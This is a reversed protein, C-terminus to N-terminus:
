VTVIPPPLQFAEVRTPRHGQSLSSASIEESLRIVVVAARHDAHKGQLGGPGNFMSWISDLRILYFGTHDPSSKIMNVRTAPYCDSHHCTWWVEMTIHDEDDSSWCCGGESHSLYRGRGIQGQDWVSWLGRILRHGIPGRKWSVYKPNPFSEFFWFPFKLHCKGNPTQGGGRLPM